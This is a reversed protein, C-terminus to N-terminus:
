LKPKSATKPPRMISTQIMSAVMKGSKDFLRAESFTRAADGAYTRWERLHWDNIDIDPTLFRLSFELSSCAGVDVLAMSDLVLPQFSISADLLFALATANEAPTKVEERVRLWDASTRDTLPLQHQTTKFGRAFGQLNQGHVSQKTFRMDILTVMLGFMKDHRDVEEQSIIGEDVMIKKRETPTWSEELSTYEKSPPASYTLFGEEVVHFDVLAVLCVREKGDDQKQMVEVLKTTFSKTARYTKTNCYLPRDILAPGLFNGNAAYIRHNAPIDYHAAQVAIGIACGGYAIPMANGMKPPNNISKFRGPQSQELALISKLSSM